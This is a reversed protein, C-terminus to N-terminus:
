RTSPSILSGMVQFQTGIDHVGCVHGPSTALRQRLEFPSGEAKAEIVAVDGQSRVGLIYPVMVLYWDKGVM